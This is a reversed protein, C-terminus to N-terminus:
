GLAVCRRISDLVECPLGKFCRLLNSFRGDITQFSHLPLSAGPIAIGFLLRFSDSPAIRTSESAECRYLWGEKLNYVPESTPSSNGPSSEYPVLEAIGAIAFFIETTMCRLPGGRAVCCLEAAYM